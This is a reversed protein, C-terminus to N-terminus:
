CGENVCLNHYFSFMQALNITNGPIALKIQRTLFSEAFVRSFSILIEFVWKKHFHYLIIKFSTTM